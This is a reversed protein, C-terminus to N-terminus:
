GTSLDLATSNTRAPNMELTPPESPTPTMNLGCVLCLWHVWERMEGQTSAALYYKRIKNKHLTKVSLLNPFFEPHAAETVQSCFTLNVSGKKKGGKKDKFYNLEYADNTRGSQSLVFFRKKWQSRLLKVSRSMKHEPPSKILWGSCLIHSM